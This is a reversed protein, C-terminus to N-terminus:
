LAAYTNFNYNILRVFSFRPQVANPKLIRLM